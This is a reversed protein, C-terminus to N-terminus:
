GNDNPGAQTAQASRLSLTLDLSLDIYKIADNLSISQNVERAARQQLARLSSVLGDQSPSIVGKESMYYSLMLPMTLTAPPADLGSDHAKQVLENEVHRWAELIAVRPRRAAIALLDRRLKSADEDSVLPRASLTEASLESIKHSFEMEVDGYRIRTMIGLAGNIQRRYIIACSLIFGPWALAKTMEVIFEFINM